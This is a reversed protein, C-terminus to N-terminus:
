RRIGLYLEGDHKAAFKGCGEGFDLLTILFFDDLNCGNGRSRGYILGLFFFPERQEDPFECPEPDPESELVSSWIPPSLPV